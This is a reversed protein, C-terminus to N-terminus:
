NPKWDVLKVKTPFCSRFFINLFFFFIVKNKETNNQQTDGTLTLKNLAKDRQTEMKKIENILFSLENELGMIKQHYQNKM